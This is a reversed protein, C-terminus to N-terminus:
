PTSRRNGRQARRRQRRLAPALGDAIEGIPEVVLVSGAFKASARRPKRRNGRRGARARDGRRRRADEALEANDWPKKVFRFVEGDNISGVIAALDSYGTLLMRVTNPASEKVQRLLEVGTM